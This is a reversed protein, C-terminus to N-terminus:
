QEAIILAKMEGLYSSGETVIKLTGDPKIYFVTPIGKINSFPEPMPEQNSIVTYEMHKKEATQKVLSADENSIALIALKDEAIIERLANLHPVEQMCPQCWTAWFVIMVNKGRYDSLKQTKGKIDTVQFDPMQKGYYTDLIPDWSTRKAIIESLANTKAVPKVQQQEVKPTNPEKPAPTTDKPSSKRCGNIAVFGLLCIILAASFIKKSLLSKM